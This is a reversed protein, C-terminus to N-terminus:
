GLPKAPFRPPRQNRERKTELRSAVAQVARAAVRHVLTGTDGHRDQIVLSPLKRFHVICRCEKDIGGRPGNIDTMYLAVKSIKRQFRSLTKQLLTAWAELQGDESTLSRLRLVIEM